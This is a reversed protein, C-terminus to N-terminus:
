TRKRPGAATSEARTSPRVAFGNAYRLDVYDIDRELPAIARRYVAVFRSLRAEVHERGLELVTGGDLALRWAGRASVDVRVPARGIGALSSRFYEYQIAMEKVAGEPGAFLPLTGDYTADFVEGATSVLGGADWRALPVREVLAVDIGDPWHRRITASAVWPLMEFASRARELDLTFFNGHLERRAINAIADASVHDLPETIRVERLAFVPLRIAVYLAGYLALAVALLVLADAIRNLTAPRDWM